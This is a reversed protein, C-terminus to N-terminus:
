GRIRLLWEVPRMLRLALRGRRTAGMADKLAVLRLRQREILAETSARRLDDESPRM